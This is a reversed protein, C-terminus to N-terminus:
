FIKFLKFDKVSHIFIFNVTFYHVLDSLPWYKVELYKSSIILLMSYFPFEDNCFSCLIITYKFPGIPSYLIQLSFNHILSSYWLTKPNFSSMCYYNNQMFSVEPSVILLAGIFQAISLRSYDLLKYQKTPHAVNLITTFIYTLKIYYIIFIYKKPIWM